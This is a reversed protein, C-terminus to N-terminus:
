SLGAAAAEEPTLVEYVSVGKATARAVLRDITTKGIKRSPVNIVRLLDVDSGPNVMLRLYALLDKIEKRDFFRLGGYITYQVQRRILAEELARSLAHTRYFVAIEAPDAGAQIDEAILGAITRAEDVEDLTTLVRIPEGEGLESRLQKGFRSHNRSIIANAGDLIRTTSRYNQELAIVECESHRDPFNLIQSVDAGRWGYISQDDDGVVCLEAFTSLLDVLEAQVPNTDQFEDVLIHAFRRRLRAVAELDDAAAAAFAALQGGGAQAAASAEAGPPAEDTPAGGAAAPSGSRPSPAAAPPAKFDIM